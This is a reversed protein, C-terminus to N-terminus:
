SLSQNEPWTSQHLFSLLSSFPFNIVDSPLSIFAKTLFCLICLLKELLTSCSDMYLPYLSFLIVQFFLFFLLFYNHSSGLFKPLFQYIRQLAVLAWRGLTIQLSSLTYVQRKSALIKMHLVWKPKHCLLSLCLIETAKLKSHWCLNKYIGQLHTSFTGSGWILSLWFISLM